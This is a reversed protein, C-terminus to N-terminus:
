TTDVVPPWAEFPDSPEARDSLVADDIRNRVPSLFGDMWSLRLRDMRVHSTHCGTTATFSFALIHLSFPLM